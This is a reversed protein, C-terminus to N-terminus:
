CYIKEKGRMKRISHKIARLARFIFPPTVAILKALWLPCALSKQLWPLYENLLKRSFNGTARFSMLGIPTFFCDVTGREKIIKERTGSELSDDLKAISEQFCRTWIELAQKKTVWGSTTNEVVRVFEGHLIKFPGRTARALACPYVFYKGGFDELIKKRDISDLMRKACVTAGYTTLRCFNSGFFEQKDIEAGIKNPTFQPPYLLIIESDEASLDISEFLTNVEAIRTDACLWVYKAVSNELAILTKEDIHVSPDVAFYRVQDSFFNKFFERTKGDTGSDYVSVIFNYKGFANKLHEFYTVICEARNYTPIVIELLPRVANKNDTASSNFAIDKNKNEMKRGGALDAGTLSIQM